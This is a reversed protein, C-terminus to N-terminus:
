SRLRKAMAAVLVPLGAIMAENVVVGWEDALTPFVYIDAEHYYRPLQQFPAVGEYKIELNLPLKISQLRELEPGNGVISLM